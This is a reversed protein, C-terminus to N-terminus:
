EHRGRRPKTAFASLDEVPEDGGLDSIERLFQGHRERLESQRKPEAGSDVGKLLSRISFPSLNFRGGIQSHTLGEETKLRQMEALEAPSIDAKRNRPPRKRKPPPRNRKTM